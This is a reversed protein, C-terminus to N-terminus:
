LVTRLLLEGVGIRYGQILCIVQGDKNVVLFVPMTNGLIQKVANDIVQLQRNDTDVSFFHRLPLNFFYEDNLSATMKDELLFFVFAGGWDDFSKRWQRIETMVHRTPEKDPDLWGLILGKDGALDSLKVTKDGTLTKVGASLDITGYVTPKVQSQRLHVPITRTQNGTINFFRLRCLVTGEPLRNGTVLLYHGTEVELKKPFRTLERNYPYDLTHYQGDSYRALTFHLYYRPILKNGPNVHELRIYGKPVTVNVQRPSDAFSVDLWRGLSFSFYQPRRTASELRAPIGFSRCLGVFFIDRSPEDAARLEYVGRPTIPVEYYNATLQVTIHRRIWQCLKSVDQRANQIFAKNFVMQLFPKYDVIIENNIRPNLVYRIFYDRHTLPM